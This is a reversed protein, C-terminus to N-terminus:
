NSKWFHNNWDKNCMWRLKQEDHSIRLDFGDEERFGKYFSRGFDLVSLQHTTKNLIFNGEHIDGHTVNLAHLKSVLKELKDQLTYYMNIDKLLVGEIKTMKIYFGSLSYDDDSSIEEFFQKNDNTLYGMELFEPMQDFKGQLYTHVSVERAFLDFAMIIKDYFSLYEPHLKYEFAIRVPDYVKYIFGDQSQIVTSYNRQIRKGSIIKDPKISSISTIRFPYEKMVNALTSLDLTMDWKNLIQNQLVQVNQELKLSSILQNFEDLIEYQMKARKDKQEDNLIITQRLEEFETEDIELLEINSTIVMGMFVTVSFKHENSDFTLFKCPLSRVNYRYDAKLLSGFKFIMAICFNGDTVFALRTKSGLAQYFCESFIGLMDKSDKHKYEFSTQKYKEFTHKLSNMRLIVPIFITENVLINTDAIARLTMKESIEVPKQQRMCMSMQIGSPVFLQSITNFIHSLESELEIDGNVVIQKYVFLDINCECLESTVITFLHLNYNFFTEDIILPDPHFFGVERIFRNKNIIREPRKQRYNADSSCLTPPLNPSRPPNSDIVNMKWYSQALKFNFVYNRFFLIRCSYKYGEDKYEYFYHDLVHLRRRIHDIETPSLNNIPFYANLIKYMMIFSIKYDYKPSKTGFYAYGEKEIMEENMNDLYETLKALGDHYKISLSEDKLVDFFNLSPSNIHDEFFRFFEDTNILERISSM